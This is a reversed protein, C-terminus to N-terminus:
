DEQIKKPVPTLSPLLILGKDSQEVRVGQYVQRVAQLSKLFDRKFFRLDSHSAGFQAYLQEWTPMSRGKLNNMRYSLWQYIDLELPSQKLAAVARYDLPISHTTIENYFKETLVIESQFLTTQGSDSMDFFFEFEDSFQLFEQKIRGENFDGTIFAARSTLFKTAQEIFRRGSGRTGMSTDIQVKRCFERFTGGTDIRRSQTRIAETALWIVFIRPYSGYPMGEPGGQIWLTYNGNQRVWAGNRLHEPKPNRYPLSAAVLCKAGFSMDGTDYPQIPNTSINVSATVISEKKKNGIQKKSKKSSQEISNEHEADTPDGNNTSLSQTEEINKTPNLTNNKKHM